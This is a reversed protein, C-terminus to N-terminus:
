LPDSLVGNQLWGHYAGKMDISPHVTIAPPVGTVTWGGYHGREANFCKADICFCHRGPLMVIIPKRGSNAAFYQDSLHRDKLEEQPVDLFWMDGVQRKLTDVNGYENM